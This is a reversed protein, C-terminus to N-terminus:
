KFNGIWALTVLLMLLLKTKRMTKQKNRSFKNLTHSLPSMLKSNAQEFLALRICKQIAM